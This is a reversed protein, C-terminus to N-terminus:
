NEKREEEKKMKELKENFYSDVVRHKAHTKVAMTSTNRGLPNASKNTNAFGTRVTAQVPV